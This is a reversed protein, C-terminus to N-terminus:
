SITGGAESLRGLPDGSMKLAMQDSSVLDIRRTLPKGDRTIEITVKDGPMYKGLIQNVDRYNPTKKGDVSLIVDGPKLGAKAAPLNPSVDRIRADKARQDLEVGIIARNRLMIKPADPIARAAISVVGLGLAETQPAPTILWSGPPPPDSEAWVIPVLDNADVKLLALDHETKSKVLTA